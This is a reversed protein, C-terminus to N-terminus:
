TPSWCVLFTRLVLKDIFLALTLVTYLGHHVQMGGVLDSVKAFSGQGGSNCPGVAVCSLLPLGSMRGCGQGPFAQTYLTSSVRLLPLDTHTHIVSLYMAM